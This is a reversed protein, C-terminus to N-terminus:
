GSMTILRDSMRSDGHCSVLCGVHHIADESPLINFDTHHCQIDKAGYGCLGFCYGALMDDFGAVSIPPFLLDFDLEKICRKGPQRRIHHLPTISANCATYVNATHLRPIRGDSPIPFSYQDLLSLWRM